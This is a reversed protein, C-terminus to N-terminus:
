HNDSREHQWQGQTGLTLDFGTVLDYYTTGPTADEVLSVQLVQHRPLATSIATEFADWPLAGAGGIPGIIVGPIVNAPTVEWRVQEDTLDEFRWVLTSPTSGGETNPTPVNTECAAFPPRVHGHATFDYDGDGDSDIDLQMRPAGAGCTHPSVFARHFNLQHDLQWVQVRRLDRAVGAFQGAATTLRLVVNTPNEPDRTVEADGTGFPRWRSGSGFNEARRAEDFSTDTETPASGNKSDCSFLMPLLIATSITRLVTM